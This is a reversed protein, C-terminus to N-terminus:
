KLLYSWAKDTEESTVELKKVLSRIKMRLINWKKESTKLPFDSEKRHHLTYHRNHGPPLQVWRGTDLWSQTSSKRPIQWNKEEWSSNESERNRWFATESLIRFSNTWKKRLKRKMFFKWKRDRRGEGLNHGQDNTWNGKLFYNSLGKLVKLCM